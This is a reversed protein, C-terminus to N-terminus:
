LFLPLRQHSENVSFLATSSIWFSFLACPLLHESSHMTSPPRRHRGLCSFFGDRSRRTFVTLLFLIFFPFLSTQSGDLDHSTGSSFPGFLGIRLFFLRLRLSDSPLPTKQPLPSGQFPTALVFDCFHKM